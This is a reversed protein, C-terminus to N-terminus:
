TIVTFKVRKWTKRKHYFRNINIVLMEDIQNLRVQLTMPMSFLTVTRDSTLYTLDIIYVDCLHPRYVRDKAETM